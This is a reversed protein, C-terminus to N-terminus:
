TLIKSRIESKELCHKHYCKCKRKNNNNDDDDDINDNDGDKCLINGHTHPVFWAEVTCLLEETFHINWATL